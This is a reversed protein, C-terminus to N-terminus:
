VSKKKKCRKLREAKTKELHHKKCLGQHPLWFMRELYIGFDKFDRPRSGLPETHDVEVEDVKHGCKNCHSDLKTQKYAESYQMWRRRADRALMMLARQNGFIRKKGM